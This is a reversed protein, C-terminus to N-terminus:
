AFDIGLAGKPDLELIDTIPKGIFREAGPQRPYEFFPVSDRKAPDKANAKHKEINDYDLILTIKQIPHNQTFNGYDLVIAGTYKKGKAIDIGFRKGFLHINPFIQHTYSFKYFFRGGSNKVKVDGVLRGSSIDMSLQGQKGFTKVSIANSLLHRVIWDATFEKSVEKDIDLYNGLARSDIEPKTDPNTISPDGAVSGTALATAAANGLKSMPEEQVQASEVLNILRRMENMNNNIKSM